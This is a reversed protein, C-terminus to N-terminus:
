FLKGISRNTTVPIRFLGHAFYKKNETKQNWCSYMAVDSNYVLRHWVGWDYKMEVLDFLHPKLPGNINTWRTSAEPKLLHSVPGYFGKRGQEEEYLGAPIGKHGQTHFRGQSYQYM